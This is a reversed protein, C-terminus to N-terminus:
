NFSAKRFFFLRTPLSYFYVFAKRRTLYYKTTSIPKTFYFIM